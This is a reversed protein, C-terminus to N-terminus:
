RRFHDWASEREPTPASDGTPAAAERAMFRAAYWPAIRDAMADAVPEGRAGALHAAEHALVWVATRAPLTLVDARVNIEHALRDVYALPADASLARYVKVTPATSLRLRAAVLRVVHELGALEQEDVRDTVDPTAAKMATRKDFAAAAKQSAAAFKSREVALTDRAVRRSAAIFRAHEATIVSRARACGCAGKCSCAVTGTAVGAARDVPSVEHIEWREIVRKAGRAQEEATPGRTAVLEYGVSWDPKERAVRVCAARGATTDFYKIEAVLQDGDERLTARGVPLEADLMAAHEWSSVKAVDNVLAGPLILDGDRDVVGLTALVARARSATAPAAKSPLPWGTLAGTVRGSALFVGVNRSADAWNSM